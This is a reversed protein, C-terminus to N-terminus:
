SMSKRLKLCQKCVRINMTQTPTFIIHCPKHKFNYGCLTGATDERIHYIGRSSGSSKIAGNRLFIERLQRNNM